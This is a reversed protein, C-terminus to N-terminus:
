FRTLFSPTRVSLCNLSMQASCFAVSLLRFAEFDESATVGSATVGIIVSVGIIVEGSEWVTELLRVSLFRVLSPGTEGEFFLRRRRSRAALACFRARM